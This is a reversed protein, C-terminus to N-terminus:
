SVEGESVGESIEEESVREESVEEESLKEESLKEEACVIMLSIHRFVVWLYCNERGM